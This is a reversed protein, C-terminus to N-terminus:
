DTLVEQVISVLDAVTKANELATPEVVFDTASDVSAIFTVVALSDWQYQELEENGKLEGEDLELTEELLKYFESKNM